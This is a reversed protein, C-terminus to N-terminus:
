RPRGCQRQPVSPKPRCGRGICMCPWPVLWPLRLQAQRAFFRAKGHSQYCPYRPASQQARLQQEKPPAAAYEHGVEKEAKTGCKISRTSKSEWYSPLEANQRSVGRCVRTQLSPASEWNRGSFVCKVSMWLTWHHLM